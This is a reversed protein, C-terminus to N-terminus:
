AACQNGKSHQYETWRSDLYKIKKILTEEKTLRELLDLNDEYLSVPYGSVKKGTKPHLQICSYMLGLSDTHSIKIIKYHNGNKSHSGSKGRFTYVCIDDPNYKPM